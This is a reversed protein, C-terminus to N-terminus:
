FGGSLGRRQKIQNARENEKYFPEVVSWLTRGEPTTLTINASNDKNVLRELLLLVAQRFDKEEKKEKSDVIPQNGFGSQASLIGIAKGILEWARTAKTPVLPVAMEAGADGFISPRNAIGGNSFKPISSAIQQAGAVHQATYGGREWMQSFKAALSAVSGNGELVSKFINSDSGDHKLAFLLQTAPDKWSKGHKKAFAKLNTLRGGLWQGLGSAGGSSNVAGPNLTSEFMWNGLIATIGNKTAKPDLQKLAKALVGARTGIDGSIKFSSIAESLNKKIWKIASAGLEKKALNLLSKSPGNDKKSKADHLGKVRYFGYGMSAGDSIRSVRASPPTENFMTGKQPNKIIGVHGAAGSGHGFIVLDGPETKSLSKGLYQVGSSEQMAVTTRGINVGFHKLAQSVMGSCDSALKSAAGMVYKVGTFNDEAYKLFAERTGGHGIGDGIANEIVTWMAQSWKNGYETSSRNGLDTFGKEVNTGKADVNKTFMSKFSNAYNKLSREALKRLASHSMGSGKAFHPLGLRNALEQTQLGNLVQDGKQLPIIRDKGRPILLNNGRVIAEQRPGYPDDNVMALTDQTLAGNVTGKAFKVPKIVSSNGGFQELVKDIGKIGRNLANITGKMDSEAYGIMKHLANKFGSATSKALKTVGSNINKMSAEIKKQMTSFKKETDKQISSAEKDIAKGMSKFEKVSKDSMSSFAKAVGNKKATKALTKLQKNISKIEKSLSKLSKTGSVKVTVKKKTNKIKKIAKALANVQKTGNVKASIKVSKSSIKPISVSGKAFHMARGFLKAMDSAKIVEQNPLLFRKTFRGKVLEISGDPNLIGERNGTSPSDNGDNLIAPTVYRNRWDTGNAFHLYGITKKSGGFAHVVDNFGGIINNISGTWDDKISKGFSKFGEGLGKWFDNWGKGFTKKFSAWRSKIDKLATSFFKGKQFAKVYRNSNVGKWLSSWKKGFDSSFSKWRSKMDKLATQFFKGKKFAKVYRNSNVSKWFNGWNKKFDKYFKKSNKNSQNVFSKWNKNIDKSSVKFFDGKKFAKVYKNKNVSKFFSNIGKGMSNFMSKTSWGLNEVSWFSKPPKKSQWGKTFKNVAQGGWKGVISGIKAGIAAGAPGGFWLGIGGGIGAGIGKGIDQSRKDASHRNKYANLFSAGADIAVGAGAIGTGIKGATTLNKFGGASRASQLLGTLKGSGVSSTLNALGNKLTKFVKSSESLEKLALRTNNIAVTFQALKTIGYATALGGAIWKVETRHKAIWEIMNVIGNSMAEVAKAFDNTLKKGDKSKTLFVVLSDGAKNIAPLMKAGLTMSFAEGTQKLRAMQMKATESNKNALKAVYDGDKGAKLTKESLTGLEKNYKALILGVQEGNVGFLSKMLNIKKTKSLGQMHKNLVGFVVALDKLNGKSDLIEKPSIGMQALVSKKGGKALKAASDSLRNIVQNLGTGAKSAEIGNNSAIGLASAVQSLPIGAQHASAGVYSMGYGLDKFRTSTMDAAYALENVARKTNQTMEATTKARLGFSELTTSSVKVVDAFDDGSAVSAQLESRMAGLAQKTTYGRKVLDEFAEAISQQSKGYQISMDRGQKQMKTVNAIAEKQKEGGTVALNTIEKYSQQLNASKKAGSIAAAGVAGIGIAATTAGTKISQWTKSMASKMKDAANTVHKAGNAIRNFGNPNLRDVEKQSAKIKSNYNNLSTTTENVRIRQKAYADSTKGSERGIRTLEDVQIKQQKSLSAVADRYGKIQTKVAEYKRGESSLREVYSKTVDSNQKLQKQVKALGSEYYRLSDKAKTQQSTLSTLRTEARKIQGENKAIQEGYKAYEKKGDETSRDVNKQADVLNKQERTLGSIYEKQKDITAKLGEFKAKAAETSKGVSSLEARQAKWASTANTVAQRLEKLTRVPQTGNLTIDTEMGGVPINGAM